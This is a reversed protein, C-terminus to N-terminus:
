KRRGGRRSRGPSTISKVTKRILWIPWTGPRAVFKGNPAIQWFEHYYLNVLVASRPHRPLDPWFIFGGLIGTYTVSGTNYDGSITM